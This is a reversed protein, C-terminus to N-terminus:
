KKELDLNRNEVLFADKVYYNHNSSNDFAFLTQCGLYTYSFMYISIKVVQDVM